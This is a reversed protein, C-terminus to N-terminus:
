SEKLRKMGKLEELLGELDEAVCPKLFDGIWGKRRHSTVGIDELLTDTYPVLDYYLWHGLQGKSLYRRRCWALNLAVSREMEGQDPPKMRGSLYAVAWLAQVEAARFNNGVVIHGLFVIGPYKRANTPIMNRHLRFPSFNAVKANHSPPYLLRPFRQAIVGDAAKDATQWGSDRNKSSAGGIPVSLGLDHALSDEFFTEYSSRWGTACIIADVNHLEHEELVISNETLRVVDERYVHVKTAVTTWFDPRQNIGTSDNQWFISFYIKLWTSRFESNSYKRPIQSSTPLAPNQNLVVVNRTSGLKTDHTQMLDKGSGILSRGVLGLRM